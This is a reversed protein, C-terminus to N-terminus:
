QRVNRQRGSPHRCARPPLIQIRSDGQRAGGGWETNQFSTCTETAYQSVASLRGQLHTVTVRHTSLLPLTQGGTALSLSFDTVSTPSFCERVRRHPSLVTQGLNPSDTGKVVLTLGDLPRHTKLYPDTQGPTPHLCSLRDRQLRDLTGGPTPTAPHYYM